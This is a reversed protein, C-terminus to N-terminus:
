QPRWPRVPPSSVRAVAAATAMGTTTLGGRLSNRFAEEITQRPPKPFPDGFLAYWVSHAAAEDGAEELQLAEKAQRVAQGVLPLAAGRAGPVLRLFLNDQGTPDFQVGAQLGTELMVLASYVADQYSMSISGIADYAASEVYLGPIDTLTNRAWHKIMRVQHTFRGGTADNREQVLRILERTNSSDWTDDDYNAIDVIESEARDFAPVLDFTFGREAFDVKVAHRSWAFAALPFAPRLADEVLRMTAGAGGAEEMLHRHEANLFGVMDVDRLPALMTKRRFSGQLIATGCVGAEALVDRIEHHLAIADDRERSNLKLHDDFGEFARSVDSM